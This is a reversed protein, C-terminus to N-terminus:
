CYTQYKDGVGVLVHTYLKKSLSEFSVFPLWRYVNVHTAVNVNYLLKTHM